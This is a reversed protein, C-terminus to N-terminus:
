FPPMDEDNPLPPQEPAGRSQVPATLVPSVVAAAAAKARLRLGIAKRSGPDMPEGMRRGTVPNIFAPRGIAQGADDFRLKGDKDKDQRVDVQVYGPLDDVTIAGADNGAWGMLRLSELTRTINDDTNLYGIWTGMEDGCQMAVAIFENGNKTRGYEVGVAKGIFQGVRM